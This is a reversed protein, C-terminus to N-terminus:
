RDFVVSCQIIMTSKDVDSIQEVVAEKNTGTLNACKCINGFLGAHYLILLCATRCNTYTIYFDWDKIKDLNNVSFYMIGEKEGHHPYYIGINGNKLTEVMYKVIDGDTYAFTWMDKVTRAGVLYGNNDYTLECNGLTSIFGKNNLSFFARAKKNEYEETTPYYTYKDDYYEIVNLDYDITLLKMDTTNTQGNYEYYSTGDIKSLRGKSDYSMTFHFKNKSNNGKYFDLSLLKRSNVHVGDVMNSSGGGNSSGSDDGGCAVMMPMAMVVLVMMSWHKFRKM